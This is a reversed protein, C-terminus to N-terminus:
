KKKLKELYNFRIEEDIIITYNKNQNSLFEKYLKIINQINDSESVPFNDIIFTNTEYKRM